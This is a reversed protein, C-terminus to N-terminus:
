ALGEPLAEFGLWQGPYRELTRHVVRRYGGALCERPTLPAEFSATYGGGPRHLIVAPLIVAGTRRALLSVWACVSGRKGPPERDGMLAVWERRRLAGAAAPWLPTGDLRHVGHRARRRAFWDELGREDHERAALHVRAGLASLYAAGWEWNGVHVSLVIV